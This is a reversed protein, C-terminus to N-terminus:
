ASESRNEEKLNTEEINLKCELQVQDAWPLYEELVSDNSAFNINPLQCFIYKLYKYADLNNAAATNIISFIIASAEAGSPSDSFLSNKRTIAVPKVAIESLNNSLPIRGDLLFNTFYKKHNLTYYLAKKLMTQNTFTKEAWAFFADLVPVSYILRNKKREEPSLEKWKREFKFLKDCYARGVAGGSGQIEKKSSDLPIAELYYRRLHSFCLCRTIGEVKEYGAYADSVHYGNFGELFVKAHDGSRSRTYQYLIIPPGECTGTRHIWIYSKSSAKKDKEKNVQWTTEDSMIISAKLLQKRMLEYLPKLWYESSRIIWNAMMDRKLEAGMRKFEKEQRYLPLSMMYKQYMIWAIISPSAVSHTLVPAPVPACYISDYPNIDNKGCEVCKYVYQYYDKIILKPPIYEMESRVKKKGIVKLDSGCIKCLAEDDNLVCEVVQHPLAKILKERDGKKRVPRKHEKINIIKTEDPIGDVIEDLLSCQGDIKPTKESSAGFRQKSAHLVAQTLLEVNHELMNVKEQLKKNENELEEIRLDKKDLFQM